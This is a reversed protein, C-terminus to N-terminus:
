IAWKPTCLFIRAQIYTYSFYLLLSICLELKPVADGKLMHAMKPLFSAYCTDDRDSTYPGRWAWYVPARLLLGMSAVSSSKTCCIWEFHSYLFLMAVRINSSTALAKLVVTRTSSKCMKFSYYIKLYNTFITLLMILFFVIVSFTWLHSVWANRHM